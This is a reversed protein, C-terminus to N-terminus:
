SMGVYPLVPANRYKFMINKLHNRYNLYNDAPLM